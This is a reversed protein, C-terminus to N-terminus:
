FRGTISLGIYPSVDTSGETVQNGGKEYVSLQHSTVGADVGLTLAKFPQWQLGLGLRVARDSFSTADSDKRDKLRAGSPDFEGRGYIKWQDSVSYELRTELGRLVFSLNDSIQWDFNVFPVMMSDDELRTLYLAGISTSFTPSWKIKGALFGGGSFNDGSSGEEFGFSGVGGMFVDWTDNVKLNIAALGSWDWTQLGGTTFPASEYDSYTGSLTGLFFSGKGLPFYLPLRLQSKWLQGSPGDATSNMFDVETRSELQFPVGLIGSTPLTEYAQVHTQSAALLALFTSSLLSKTVHLM